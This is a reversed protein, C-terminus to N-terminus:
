NEADSYNVVLQGERWELWDQNIGSDLYNRTPMGSFRAEGELVLM